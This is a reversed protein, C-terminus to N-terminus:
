YWQNRTPSWWWSWGDRRHCWLEWTEGSSYDLFNQLVDWDSANFPEASGSAVEPLMLTMNQNDSGIWPPPPFLLSPAALTLSAPPVTAPRKCIPAGAATDTDAEAADHLGDVGHAGDAGDVTIHPRARKGM